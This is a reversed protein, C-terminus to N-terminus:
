LFSGHFNPFTAPLPAPTRVTFRAFIPNPGANPILYLYTGDFVAGVFPELAGADGAALSSPDFASWACDATFTSLTDYRTLPAAGSVSPVLYIFRGDYAAGSYIVPIGGDLIWLRTTDYASWSPTSTFTGTTDFRVAIGTGHPALYVYQSDFAGGVFENAFSSITTTDFTSWTSPTAFTTGFTHRVVTSSTGGHVEADFADNIYPALFLSQAGAVGGAFGKAQPNITTVDFTLWLSPDGFSGPAPANGGDGADSAVPGADASPVAADVSAQSDYRVVRGDPAGDNRPVFFVFRGDFVAGFFGSTAAGGDASLTALDFTAWADPASFTGLTDFRAAVSEVVGHLYPVFYVYRGDFVVGGFGGSAGTPAYSNWASPANFPLTTDYRAVKGANGAFYVYRGDFTGGAFGATGFGPLPQVGFFAWNSTGADDVETPTLPFYVSGGADLPMCTPTAVAGDSFSTSDAGADGPAGEVGPGDNASTADPGGATGAPPADLGIIASCAATAVAVGLGAVPLLRKRRARDSVM